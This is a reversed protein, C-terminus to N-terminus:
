SSSYHAVLNISLYWGILIISAEFGSIPFFCFQLRMRLFQTRHRPAESVWVLRWFCVIGMHILRHQLNTLWRGFLIVRCWLAGSHHVVESLIKLEEWNRCVHLVDMGSAAAVEKGNSRLESHSPELTTDGNCLVAQRLVNLCHHAGDQKEIDDEWGPNMYLKRLSNLCSIQYYVSIFHRRKDTSHFLLGTVYNPPLLTEWEQDANM